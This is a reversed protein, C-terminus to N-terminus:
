HTHWSHGTSQHTQNHRACPKFIVIWPCFSGVIFAWCNASILTYLGGITMGEPSTAGGGIIAPGTGTMAPFGWKGGPPTM